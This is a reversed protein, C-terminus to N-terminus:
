QDNEVFLGGFGPRGTINKYALEATSASNPQAVLQAATYDFVAGTQSAVDGSASTSLRGCIM